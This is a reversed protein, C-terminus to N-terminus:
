QRYKKEVVEARQEMDEWMTQRTAALDETKTEPKAFMCVLYNLTNVQEVISGDAQITPWPLESTIGVRVYGFSKAYLELNPFNKPRLPHDDPRDVILGCSGEYGLEIIKKEMPKVFKHGIGYNRYQPMIIVEGLYYLKNADFGVKAFKNEADHVIEATSMLPIGTVFGVMKDEDFAALMLTDKNTIYHELYAKEYEISGEYLYPYYRFQKIRAQALEDLFPAIETGQFIKFTFTPTQTEISM